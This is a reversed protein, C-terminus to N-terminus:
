CGGGGGGGGDGGGSTAAVFAGSSMAATAAAVVAEVAKGLQEGKSIEKLRKRGDRDLGLAGVLKTTHLLAALLARRNDLELRDNAVGRMEEILAERAAQDPYFKDYPILLASKREHRMLGREVLAHCHTKRVGRRHQVFSAAAVPKNREGAKKVLYAMGEDLWGTGSPSADVVTLKKKDTFEVRHRLVLEGLEAAGPYDSMSHYSGNDKQLLLVFEEPLTLGSMGGLRAGM